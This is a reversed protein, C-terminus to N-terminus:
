NFLSNIKSNNEIGSSIKNFFGTAFAHFLLALAVLVAIIIVIEITGMGDEEKVKKMLNKTAYFKAVAMHVGLKKLM